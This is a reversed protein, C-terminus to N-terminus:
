RMMVGESKDEAPDPLPTPVEIISEPRHIPSQSEHARSPKKVPVHLGLGFTIAVFTPQFNVM